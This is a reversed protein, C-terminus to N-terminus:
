TFRDEIWADVDRQRFRLQRGIYLGRLGWTRWSRYVTDVCLGTLDAIEQATVLKNSGGIRGPM